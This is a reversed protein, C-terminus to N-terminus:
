ELYIIANATRTTTAGDYRKAERENRSKRNLPENVPSNCRNSATGESSAPPANSRKARQGVCGHM